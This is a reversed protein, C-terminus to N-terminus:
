SSRRALEVTRDADPAILGLVREAEAVLPEGEGRRMAGFPRLTISARGDSRSLDWTGAVVGDLLFTPLVDANKSFVSARHEDAIVRGRHKPAHSLLLSDWRALLRPPAPTDPDPRPGEALDVLTRGDDAKMTVTEDGLADIADRWVGIGGKGRGVYAVLDDVSAPGFAGLYV